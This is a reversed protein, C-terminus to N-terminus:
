SGLFVSFIPSTFPEHDKSFVLHFLQLFNFHDNKVNLRGSALKVFSLLRIFLLFHCFQFLELWYKSNFHGSVFGDGAPVFVCVLYLFFLILKSGCISDIRIFGQEMQLLVQVADNSLQCHITIGVPQNTALALYAMKSLVLIVLIIALSVKEM